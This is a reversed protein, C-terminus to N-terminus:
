CICTLVQDNVDTFRTVFKELALPLQWCFEYSANKNLIHVLVYIYEPVRSFVVDVKSDSKEKLNCRPLPVM